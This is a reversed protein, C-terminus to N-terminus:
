VVVDPHRASGSNLCYIKIKLESSKIKLKIKSLIKTSTKQVLMNTLIRMKLNRYKENLKLFHM